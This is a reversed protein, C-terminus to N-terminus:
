DTGPPAADRGRAERDEPLFLIYATDLGRAHRYLGAGPDRPDGPESIEGHLEPQFLGDGHVRLQDLLPLRLKSFGHQSWREPTACGSRTAFEPFRACVPVAPRFAGCAPRRWSQQLLSLIVRRKGAGKPWAQGYNLHDHCCAREVRSFRRLPDISIQRFSRYVTAAAVDPTHRHRLLSDRAVVIPDQGLGECSSQDRQLLELLLM